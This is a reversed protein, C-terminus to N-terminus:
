TGFSFPRASEFLCVSQSIQCHVPLRQQIVHQQVRCASSSVTKPKPVRITTILQAHSSCQMANCQMAYCLMLMLMRMKQKCMAKGREIGGGEAFIM